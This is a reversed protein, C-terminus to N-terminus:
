YILNTPGLHDRPKQWADCPGGDTRLHSLISPASLDNPFCVPESLLRQLLPGPFSSCLLLRLPFCSCKHSKKNRKKERDEDMQISRKIDSQEANSDGDHRQAVKDSIDQEDCLQICSFQIEKGRIIKLNVIM